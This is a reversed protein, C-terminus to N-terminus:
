LVLTSNIAFSLVIALLAPLGNSLTVQSLPVDVHSALPLGGALRYALVAIAFTVVQQAINLLRAGSSRQVFLELLTRVAAVGVLAIWNPVILAAALYPIFAISGSVSNPMLLVLAEAILALSCLLVVTLLGDKPIAPDYVYLGAASAAALVLALTVYLKARPNM